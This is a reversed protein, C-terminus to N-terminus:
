RSGDGDRDDIIVEVCAPSELVHAVGGRVEIRVTLPGLLRVFLRLLHRALYSVKPLKNPQVYLQDSYPDYECYYDGVRVLSIGPFFFRPDPNFGISVTTSDSIDSWFAKMESTPFLETM